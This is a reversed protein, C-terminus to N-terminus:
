ICAQEIRACCGHCLRCTLVHTLVPQRNPSFGANTPHNALRTWCTPLFRPLPVVRRADKAMGQNFIVGRRGTMDMAAAQSDRISTLPRIALGPCPTDQQYDAAQRDVAHSPQASHSDATGSQGKIPRVKKPCPLEFVNRWLFTAASIAQNITSASAGAREMNALFSELERKGLTRLDKDPFAQAIRWCIAMYRKSTAASYKRSLMADLMAM